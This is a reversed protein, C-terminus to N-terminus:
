CNVFFRGRNWGSAWYGKVGYEIMKVIMEIVFIISCCFDLINIIQNQIGSEQLFLIVANLIIIVLILRENLFINKIAKLM